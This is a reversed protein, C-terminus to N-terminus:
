RKNVFLGLLERIAKQGVREVAGVGRDLLFSMDDVAAQWPPAGARLVPQINGSPWCVRAGVGMELLKTPLRGSKELALLGKVGASALVAKIGFPMALTSLVDLSFGVFGIVLLPKGTQKAVDLDELSFAALSGKLGPHTHWLM